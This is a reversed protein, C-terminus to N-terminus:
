GYELQGAGVCVQSEVEIKGNHETIIKSSVSLGLGTGKGPEKTTFFPQFIKERITEPVGAGNDKVEVVVPPSANSSGHNNALYNRIEIRKTDKGSADVADQGNNILNMFVQELSIANGLVKSLDPILDKMVEIGHSKLQQDLLRIPGKVVNNLDILKEPMGETSRTYIRMHDIIQAMKNVQDVIETLDDAVDEEEFHNKSLDRL